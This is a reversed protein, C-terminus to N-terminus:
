RPVLKRLRAPYDTVIGDVGAEILRQWEAEENPTWCWFTLQRFKAERVLQPTVSSYRISAAQCGRKVAADLFRLAEAGEVEGSMLAAAIRPQVQRSREVIGPSFSHVGAWGIASHDEIVRLVADVLRDDQDRDDPTAKLECFVALHGQVLQLVESLTPVHEGDGANAMGLQEATLSRVPGSLNTTRDVTTDHMLVPIGDASLQVDVEMADASHLAARVGALTNAPAEGGATAHGIVFTHGM